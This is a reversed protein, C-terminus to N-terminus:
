CSNIWRKGTNMHPVASLWNTSVPTCKGNGQESILFVTDDDNTHIAYTCLHLKNIM